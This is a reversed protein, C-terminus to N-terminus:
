PCGRQDPRLCRPNGQYTEQWWNVANTLDGEFSRQVAKELAGLMFATFTGSPHAAWVLLDRIQAERQATPDSGGLELKRGAVVAYAWAFAGARLDGASLESLTQRLRAAAQKLLEHNDLRAAVAAYAEVLEGARPDGDRLAALRWSLRAAAQELAGQDSLQAAVAGYAHALAGVRGDGAPLDELAQRMAAAERMAGQDSLQAAVAAYAEVFARGRRDGAPLGVLAQRMAVAEALAGEASLRDAVAAYAEAFARGRRDGAPLGTLPKRLTAAAEELAETNSLRQAVAAYAQAFAGARRDDTRLGELVRRLRAATQQLVEQDSLRESVLAYAQAVRGALSDRPELETLVKWLRRAAEQLAEQDSLRGAVAAYAQAFAGVRRDGAPLEELAQRMAVAEDLAEQDSLWRAVAAYVQAFDAARPDDGPLGVLAQRMAVAEALAGEASLREAVAAYAEVFARGRWDGAPLGVLAQRMAVAEALMGQASLRKAVAAYFEALRDARLDDPPLESLARRIAAAEQLAEGDSLRVAVAGYAEVFSSVRSHDTPLGALARRLTVAAERLRAQEMGGHAVGWGGLIARELWEPNALLMDRVRTRVAPEARWIGDSARADESANRGVYGTALRRAAEAMTLDHHVWRAAEGSAALVLVLVAPKIASAAAYGAAEGYRLRGRLREWVMRLQSWIPLLAAWRARWNADAERYRAAGEALAIPWRDAERAEALVARALYEHDLQWALGVGSADAPRVIDEQQLEALARRAAADGGALEALDSFARRQSKPAQNPGTPLVLARTMARVRALADVGGLKAAAKGYASKVALLEMGRLGGARQYARETLVPLQRLGLLVTRVQQMLLAGEAGLDQGLRDRLAHWGAEPHRVVQPKEDEPALGALIQPLYELKVLEVPRSKISEEPLFHMCALGAARDNRTVALLHLRGERVRARVLAWFGNSEALKDSSLWNGDEDRFRAMHQAQHDDFQDAILLVRHPPKTAQDLRYEFEALLAHGDAALDPPQEWALARRAEESLAAHLAELATAAPGRVWDEGWDRILIPVWGGAKLLGRVLGAEVLASKGCGSVGSLLVIRYRQVVASLEQLERTRGILSEPTTAVLNFADPRLLRSARAFRRYDLALWGLVAVIILTAVAGAAWGPVGLSTLGVTLGTAAAAVAASLGVILKFRGDASKLWDDFATSAM